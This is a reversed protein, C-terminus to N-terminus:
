PQAPACAAHYAALSQTVRWFLVAEPELPQDVFHASQPLHQWFLSEPVHQGRLASLLRSVAAQAYPHNWYYRIRDSLSYHRLLRQEQANGHYHKQWNSPESLMLAEMETYLPRMGYDPLLDSAILDLAYLAERLVFTLEPGVKLIPFGDRM